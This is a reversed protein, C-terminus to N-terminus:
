IISLSTSPLDHLTAAIAPRRICLQRTKNIELFQININVSASASVNADVDVDINSSSSITTTTSTSNDISVQDANFLKHKLNLLQFHDPTKDKAAKTSLKLNGVYAMIGYMMVLYM